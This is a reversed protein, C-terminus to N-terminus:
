KPQARERSVNAQALSYEASSAQPDLRALLDGEQVLDGVEFFIETIRGSTGFGLLTEDQAIVDGVVRTEQVLDTQEVLTTEITESAFLAQFIRFLIILGVLGILYWRKKGPLKKM